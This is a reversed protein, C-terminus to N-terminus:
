FIPHGSEATHFATAKYLKYDKAALIHHEAEYATANKILERGHRVVVLWNRFTQPYIGAACISGNGDKDWPSGKYADGGEVLFGDPCASAKPYLIVVYGDHRTVADNAPAIGKAIARSFVDTLGADIAELEDQTARGQSKHTYVFAGNPTRQDGTHYLDREVEQLRFPTEAVQKIQRADNCAGFMTLAVLVLLLTSITKIRNM